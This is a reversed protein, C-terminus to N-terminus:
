FPLSSDDDEDALAAPFEDLSQPAQQNLGLEREKWMLVEQKRKAIQGNWYGHDRAYGSADPASAEMEKPLPSVSNIMAYTRQKGKSIKHAITLLATRGVMTELPVGDKIQGETLPKGLWAELFHRLKAKDGLSATFTARMEFPKNDRTPNRHKTVFIWVIEQREKTLGQWENLGYGLDIFDVCRGAMTGEPHVPFTGTNTSGKLTLADTM